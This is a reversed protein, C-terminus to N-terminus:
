RPKETMELYRKHIHKIKDLYDQRKLEYAIFPAKKELGRFRVREKCYADIWYFRRNQLVLDNLKLIKITEAIEIQLSKELEYNPKVL